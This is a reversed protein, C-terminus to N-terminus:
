LRKGGHRYERLRNAEVKAQIADDLDLDLAAAFEATRIVVDALELALPISRPIDAARWEELAESVESHILALREAVTVPRPEDGDYALGFGHDRAIRLSERGLDNLGTM